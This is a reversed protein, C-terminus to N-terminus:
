CPAKSKLIYKLRNYISKSRLIFNRISYYFTEKEKTHAQMISALLQELVWLLCQNISEEKTM